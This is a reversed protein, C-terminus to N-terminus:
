GKWYKQRSHKEAERYLPKKKRVGHSPEAKEETGGRRRRRRRRTRGAAQAGGELVAVQPGLRRGGM